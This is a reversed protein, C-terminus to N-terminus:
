FCFCSKKDSFESGLEEMNIKSLLYNFEQAELDYYKQMNSQNLPENIGEKRSKIKKQYTMDFLDSLYKVKKLYKENRVKLVKERTHYSLDRMDQKFKDRVFDAEIWHPILYKCRQKTETIQSELESIFNEDIEPGSNIRKFRIKTVLQDYSEVANQHAEAKNAFGFASSFSQILTSISALCGVVLTMITTTDGGFYSSSALFSIIGGFTTILISPIVFSMNCKEFYKAAMWHTTRKVYAYDSINKMLKYNDLKSGIGGISNINNEGIIEISIEKIKKEGNEEYERLIDLHIEQNFDPRLLQYVQKKTFDILDLDNIAIITDGKKLNHKDAISNTIINNITYLKTEKDRHLTVGLDSIGRQSIEQQNDRSIDPSAENVVKLKPKKHIRNAEVNPKKNKYNKRATFARYLSQIKVAAKEDDM